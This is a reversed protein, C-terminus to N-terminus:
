WCSGASPQCGSGCWDVASGCWGWQSCCDGFASGLCTVTGGCRGDTSVTQGGGGGGSKFLAITDPYVNINDSYGAVTQGNITIM